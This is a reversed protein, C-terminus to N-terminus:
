LTPKSSASPFTDLSPWDRLEQRYTIYDGHQPHDTLLSLLDYKAIEIDRWAREMNEFEDDEVSKSFSYPTPDSDLLEQSSFVGVRTDKDTRVYKIYKM